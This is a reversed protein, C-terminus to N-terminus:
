CKSIISWDKWESCQYYVTSDVEPHDPPAMPSIYMVLKQQLGKRDTKDSTIRGKAEEKHSGQSHCSSDCDRMTTVDEIIGAKGHGYRMFTTEIFMDSWIRNWLGQVHRMVHSGSMFHKLLNEPLSEM